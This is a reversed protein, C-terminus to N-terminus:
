NLSHLFIGFGERFMKLKGQRLLTGIRRLASRSRAAHLGSSPLALIRHPRQLIRYLSLMSPSWLCTHRSM